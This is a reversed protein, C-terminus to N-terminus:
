YQALTNVTFSMDPRTNNALYALKMGASHYIKKKEANLKPSQDDHKWKEVMLTPKTSCNLMGMEMLIETAYEIIHRVEGLDKIEFDKRISNKIEEVEGKTLAM